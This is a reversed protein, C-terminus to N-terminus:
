EMDIREDLISWTEISIEYYLSGDEPDTKVVFEPGAWEGIIDLPENPSERYEVKLAGMSPYDCISIHNKLLYEVALDGPLADLLEVDIGVFHLLEYLWQQRQEEIVELYSTMNALINIRM